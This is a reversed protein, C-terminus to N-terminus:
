KGKLQQIFITMQIQSHASSHVPPIMTERSEGEGEERVSSSTNHDAVVSSATADLECGRSQEFGGGVHDTHATDKHDTIDGQSDGTFSGKNDVTNGVRQAGSERGIRTLLQWTDPTCWSSMAHLLRSVPSLKPSNPPNLPTQQHTIDDEDELKLASM